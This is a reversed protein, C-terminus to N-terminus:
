NKKTKAREKKNQGTSDYQQQEYEHQSQLQENSTSSM